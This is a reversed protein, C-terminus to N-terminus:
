TVRSRLIYTYTPFKLEVFREKLNLKFVRGACKFLVNLYCHTLCYLCRLKLHRFMFHEDMQCCYLNLSCPLLAWHYWIKSLM